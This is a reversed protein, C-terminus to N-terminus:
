RRGGDASLVRHWEPRVKDLHAYESLCQAPDFQNTNRFAWGKALVRHCLALEVECAVAHSIIAMAVTIEKPVSTTSYLFNQVM